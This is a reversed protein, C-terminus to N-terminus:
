RAVETFRTERIVTIKVEGPYTVEKEIRKAVNKALINAEDDTSAEAVCAIPVAYCDTSGGRTVVTALLLEFTVQDSPIEVSDFIDVSQLGENKAAFWRQNELFAALSRALSDLHRSDEFVQSLSPVNILDLPNM